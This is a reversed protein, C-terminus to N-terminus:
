GAFAVPHAAFGAHCRSRRGRWASDSPWRRPHRAYPDLAAPWRDHQSRGVYSTMYSPADAMRRANEHPRSDEHGPLIGHRVWGLDVDTHHQCSQFGAVDGDVAGSEEREGSEDGPRTQLAQGYRCRRWGSGPRVDSLRAVQTSPHVDVVTARAAGLLGAEADVRQQTVVQGPPPRTSRAVAVRAVTWVVCVCCVRAAAPSSRRSRWRSTV